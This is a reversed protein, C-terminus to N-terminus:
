PLDFPESYTTRPHQCRCSRVVFRYRGAPAASCRTCRCQADGLMGTWPVIELSSDAALTICDDPATGTCRERLLLGATSVPQWSGGVQQQVTIESTLHAPFDGRDVNVVRLGMGRAGTTRVLELRVVPCHQEPIMPRHQAALTTAGLALLACTLAAALVPRRMCTM